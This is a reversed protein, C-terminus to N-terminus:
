AVHQAVFARIFDGVDEYWRLVGLFQAVKEMLDGRVFFRAGDQFTGVRLVRRVTRQGRTVKMAGRARRRTRLTGHVMSNTEGNAGNDTHSRKRRKKRNRHS